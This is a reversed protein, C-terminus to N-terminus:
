TLVAALMMVGSFALVVLLYLWVLAM